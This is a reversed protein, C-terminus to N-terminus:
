MQNSKKHYIYTFIGTGMSWDHTYACRMPSWFWGLNRFISPWPPFGLRIDSSKLHGFAPVSRRSTAWHSVKVSKPIVRGSVLWIAGSFLASGAGFPLLLITERAFSNTEPLTVKLSQPIVYKAPFILHLSKKWRGKASLTRAHQIKARKKLTFTLDLFFCEFIVIWNQFDWYKKQSQMEWNTLYLYPFM